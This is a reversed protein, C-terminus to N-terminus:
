PIRLGKPIFDDHQATRHGTRVGAPDLRGRAPAAPVREARLTDYYSLATSLAPAPVGGRAAAAVVGRWGRQAAAFERTFAADAPFCPVARGSGHAGAIRDLFPAPVLSDDGWLSSVVGLDIDWGYAGNAEVIRHWGQAWVVVKSAYLAQEVERVFGDADALHRGIPEPGPLRRAARHWAALGSLAQDFVAAAINAVPVDADQASRAVRRGYGGGQGDYPEQRSEGDAVATRALLDATIETFHAGLRGGDWRGFVDAIRAPSFGGIGRLLDYAEATLEVTAHAIGDHVMKVFHGAGDPGVRTAAPRGDSTRTAITELVPGVVDYAEPSGGVTISPGYLTKEEGGSIGAGVFHIGHEGLEAERRRTDAFHADGGDVLLDGPELLPAFAAIVSDTAEGARVTILLRRPRELSSLLERATRAPLFTGEHGFESVLGRTRDATRSHVAVAYGRRALNRALNRGTAALGIVGIQATSPM